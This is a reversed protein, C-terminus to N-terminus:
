GTSTCLKIQEGLLPAEQLLSIIEGGLEDEILGLSIIEGPFDAM